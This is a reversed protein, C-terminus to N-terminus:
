QAGSIVGINEVCEFEVSGDQDTRYFRTLDGLVYEYKRVVSNAPHGYSNGAGVSVVAYEPAVKSIFGLSNSGTSGHHGVQLLNASLSPSLELLQREGTSDLDGPLLVSAEGFSVLLAVSAANGGLKLREPPWLVEFRPAGGFSQKGGSGGGLKLMMGRVLTDVPIGLRRAARLVSDRIFGGSTDPGVFLQRVHVRPATGSESRAATGSGQKLATESESRAATGCGQKLATGGKSSKGAGGIEMFGGAHDRHNHSVLVWELTDVGRAVLSDIVGVSDPGTDYLAYRGDLELLVALGQGVDLFTVRLTEGDGDDEAYTCAALLTGGVVAAVAFGWFCRGFNRFFCFIFYRM